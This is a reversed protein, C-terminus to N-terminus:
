MSRWQWRERSGHTLPSAIVKWGLEQLIPTVVCRLDKIHRGVQFSSDPAWPEEGLAWHGLMADVSEIPCGREVLETRMYRRHANIPVSGPFSLHHKWLTPNLPQALFSEGLYFGSSDEFRRGRLLLEAEVRKKHSAYLALQDIVPLPVWVLRAHYPRETDKDRITSIGWEPDIDQPRLLPDKTARGAIATQFLWITYATYLNHFRIFGELDTYGSARELRLLVDGILNKFASTTLCQRAGVFWTKTKRNRQEAIWASDDVIAHSEQELADVYVRRLHGMDLLSYFLRPYARPEVRACILSAVTVDGSVAMVRDQVYRRLKPLTIRGPDSTIESLRSALRRKLTQEDPATPLICHRHRGKWPLDDVRQVWKWVGFLDPLWVSDRRRRSLGQGLLQNGKYDPMVAKRRWEAAGGKKMEENRYIGLEVKLERRREGVHYIGAAVKPEVGTWLMILLTLTDAVRVDAVAPNRKLLAELAAVLEHHTLIAEQMTLGDYRWGFDQSAMTTAKQRGIASLAVSAASRLTDRCSHEVLDLASPNVSEDPAEDLLENVDSQVCDFIRAIPLDIDPDTDVEILNWQSRGHGHDVFGVVGRGKRERKSGGRRQTRAWPLKGYARLVYRVYTAVAQEYDGEILSGIWFRLGPLSAPPAGAIDPLEDKDWHTMERLVRSAPYTDNPIDPIRDEFPYRAYRKVSVYKSAAHAHALLFTLALECWATEAEPHEARCLVVSYASYITIGHRNLPHIYRPRRGDEIEKKSQQAREPIVHFAALRKEALNDVKLGALWRCARCHSELRRREAPKLDKVWSVRNVIELYRQAWLGLALLNPPVQFDRFLRVLDSRRVDADRGEAFVEILRKIAASEVPAGSLLGRQM